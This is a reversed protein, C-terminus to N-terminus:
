RVASPSESHVMYSCKLLTAKLTHLLQNKHTCFQNLISIYLTGYTKGLIFESFVTNNYHHYSCSEVAALEVVAAAVAPSHAPWAKELRAEEMGALAATVSLTELGAAVVLM